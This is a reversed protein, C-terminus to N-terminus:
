AERAGGIRWQKGYQQQAKFRAEAASWAVIACNRYHYFPNSTYTAFLDVIWVKKM